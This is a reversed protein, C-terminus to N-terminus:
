SSSGLCYFVYAQKHQKYFRKPQNTVCAQSVTGDITIGNDDWLVILKELKQCATSNRWDSVRKSLNASTGFAEIIEKQAGYVQNAFGEATAVFTGLNKEISNSHLDNNEIIGGIKRLEAASLNLLQHTNMM